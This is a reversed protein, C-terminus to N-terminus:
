VDVVTHSSFYESGDACVGWGVCTFGWQCGGMGLVGQGAQEQPPLVLM